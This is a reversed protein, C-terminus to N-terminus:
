FTDTIVLYFTLKKKRGLIIRIKERILNTESHTKYTQIINNVKYILFIFTKM